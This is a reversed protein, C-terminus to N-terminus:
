RGEKEYEYMFQSMGEERVGLKGDKKYKPGSVEWAGFVESRPPKIISIQIEADSFRSPIAVKEGVKFPCEQEAYAQKVAELQEKASLYENKAKEIDQKTIKM